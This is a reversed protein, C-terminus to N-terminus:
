KVLFIIIMLVGFRHFYEASAPLLVVPSVPSALVRFIKLGFFEVLRVYLKRIIMLSTLLMLRFLLFSVPCWTLLLLFVVQPCLLAKSTYSCDSVYCWHYAILWMLFSTSLWAIVSLFGPLYDMLHLFQLLYYFGLVTLKEISIKYRTSIKM